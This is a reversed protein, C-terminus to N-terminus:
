CNLSHHHHWLFRKSSDISSSILTVVLVIGLGFTTYAMVCQLSWRIFIGVFSQLLYSLVLKLPFSINKFSTVVIAITALTVLRNWIYLLAQVWGWWSDLCFHCFAMWFSNLSIPFWNTYLILSVLRIGGLHVHMFFLHTNLILCLLMYWTCSTAHPYLWTWPTSKNM